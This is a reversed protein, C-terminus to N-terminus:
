CGTGTIVRIHIREQGGHRLVSNIIRAMQTGLARERNRLLLVGCVTGYNAGKGYHVAGLVM